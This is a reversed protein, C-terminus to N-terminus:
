RPVPRRAERLPPANPDLANRLPDMDPTRNGSTVRRFRIEKVTPSLMVVRDIMWEDPKLLYYAAARNGQPNKLDLRVQAFEVVAPPPADDPGPREEEPKVHKADGTNQPVNKESLMREQEAKSPAAGGHAIATDDPDVPSMRCAALLLAGLLPLAKM